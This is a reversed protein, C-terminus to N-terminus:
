HRSPLEHSSPLLCDGRSQIFPSTTYPLSTTRVISPYSKQTQHILFISPLALPSGTHVNESVARLTLVRAAAHAVENGNFPELGRIWLIHTEPLHYLSRLIKPAARSIQGLPFYGRADRYDSTVTLYDTGTTTGLAVAFEEEARTFTPTVTTATLGAGNRTVCVAHARLLNNNCNIIREFSQIYVQAM